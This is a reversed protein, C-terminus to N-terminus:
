PHLISIKEPSRGSGWKSPNVAGVLVRAMELDVDISIIEVDRLTYKLRVASSHRVVMRGLTPKKFWCKARIRYIYVIQM